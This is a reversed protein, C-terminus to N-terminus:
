KSFFGFKCRSFFAIRRGANFSNKTKNIVEEILKRDDVSDSNSQYDENSILRRINEQNAKAIQDFRQNRYLWYFIRNLEFCWVYANKAQSMNELQFFDNKQIRIM